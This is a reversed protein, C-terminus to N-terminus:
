LYQMLVKHCTCFNKAQHLKIFLLITVINRGREQIKKMMKQGVVVRRRSQEEQIWGNKYWVSQSWWVDYYEENFKEGTWENVICPLM